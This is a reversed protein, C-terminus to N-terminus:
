NSVVRLLTGPGVGCPIQIFLKKQESILDVIIEKEVGWYAEIQKLLLEYIEDVEERESFDEV